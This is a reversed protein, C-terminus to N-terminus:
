SPTNNKISTILNKIYDNVYPDELLFSINDYDPQSIKILYNINDFNDFNDIHANNALAIFLKNKDAGNNLLSSIINCKIRSYTYGRQYMIDLSEDIDAGMYIMYKIIYSNSNNIANFLCSNVFKKYRLKNKCCNNELNKYPILIFKSSSCVDCLHLIKSNLATYDKCKDLYLKIIDLKDCNIVYKYINKNKDLNLMCLNFLCNFSKKTFIYHHYINFDSMDLGLGLGISLIKNALEFNNGNIAGLFLNSMSYWDNQYGIDTLFYDVIDKNNKLACAYLIEDDSGKLFCSYYEYILKFSNLNGNISVGYALDYIDMYKNENPSSFSINILNFIEKEDGKLGVLLMTTKELLTIDKIIPILHYIAEINHSNRCLSIKVDIDMNEGYCKALPIMKIADYRKDQIALLYCREDNIFNECGRFYHYQSLLEMYSKMPSDNDLFLVTDNGFDYKSKEVWFYTEKTIKYFNKNTKCLSIIDRYSCRKLIYHLIELPLCEM